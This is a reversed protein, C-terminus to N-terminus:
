ASIKGFKEIIVTNNFYFISTLLCHKVNIVSEGLDTASSNSKISDRDSSSPNPTTQRGTCPSSRTLCKSRVNIVIAHVKKIRSIILFKNLIWFLMFSNFYFVQKFRGNYGENIIGTLIHSSRSFIILLAKSALGNVYLFLWLTLLTIVLVFELFNKM